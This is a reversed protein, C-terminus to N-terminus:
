PKYKCVFHNEIHCPADNWKNFQTEVALEGCNEGDGMNNPEGNKWNRYNYMSGDNWKWRRNQEPDHLGIWVDGNYPYALVNKAIIDAESPDLISALHAGHGYSVCEFEAESWSLKFRFYGYCHSKYFFWGNPCRSRPAADSLSVGLIVCGLLVIVSSSSM